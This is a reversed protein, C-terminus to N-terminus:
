EFKRLLHDEGSKEIVCDFYNKEKSVVMHKIMLYDSPIIHAQHLDITRLDFWALAGEKGPIITIDKAQLACLHLLFHQLVIEKEILLESVFGLHGKFQSIIGTEEAIERVAAESVHEQKEIKGGPLSWYGVYNGKIRKILLIKNDHVLAAIAVPLPIELM